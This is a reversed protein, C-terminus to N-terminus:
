AAAEVSAEDLEVETLRGFIDLMLKVREDGAQEKYLGNFSTFPGDTVRLPQGPEFKPQDIWAFGRKVIGAEILLRGGSQAMLTRLKDVQDERAAVPREGMRLLDEIDRVSQVDAFWEDTLVGRVFIYGPFLPGDIAVRKRRRSVIIRCEPLWAEIGLDALDDLARHERM